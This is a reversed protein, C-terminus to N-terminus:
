ERRPLPQHHRPRHQQQRAQDGLRHRPRLALLRAGQRLPADLPQLSRVGAARPACASTLPHVCTTRSARPAARRGITANARHASGRRARVTFYLLAYAYEERPYVKLDLRRFRPRTPLRIVGRYSHCSATRVARDLGAHHVEEEHTLHDMRCGMAALENLISGILMSDVGGDLRTILVDVDGSSPKGRRYSGAGMAEAAAEVDQEAVGHKVLVRRMAARVTEVIETVEERPIREQLDVWHRAGM